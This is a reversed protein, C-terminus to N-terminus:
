EGGRAADRLVAEVDEARVLLMGDDTTSRPPTLSRWLREAAERVAADSPAPAVEHGASGSRLVPVPLLRGGADGDAGDGRGQRVDPLTAGGREADDGQEDRRESEDKPQGADATQEDHGEVETTGPTEAEPAPQSICRCIVTDDNLGYFGVGRCDPCEPDAKLKAAEPAPPPALDEDRLIPLTGFGGCLDCGAHSEGERYGPCPGYERPAPPPALPPAGTGNCRVCGLQENGAPVWGVGGCDPCETDAPPPALPARGVVMNCAPCSITEFEGGARQEALLARLADICSQARSSFPKACAPSDWEALAAEARKRAESM